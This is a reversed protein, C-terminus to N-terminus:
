SMSVYKEITKIFKDIEIILLQECKEVYEQIQNKAYKMMQDLLYIVREGSLFSISGKFYHAKHNIKDYDVEKIAEYIQHLDNQYTELFRKIIMKIDKDDYGFREEFSDVNFTMLENPCAIYTKQPLYRKITEILHDVKFPKFIVDNIGSDFVKDRDVFINATVAIIPILKDIFRIKRTAEYGDMNPMQLDMLVMNFTEKKIYDIAKGGSNAKQCDFGFKELIAALAKQNIENDDVILIQGEYQQEILEENHPKISSTLGSLQTLREYTNKLYSKCIFIEDILLHENVDISTSIIKVNPNGYNKKIYILEDFSKIRRNILIFDLKKHLDLKKVEKLGLINLQQVFCFHDCNTEHYSYFTKNKLLPYSLKQGKRYPIQIIFVTGQDIESQVEITGNILGVLQYVISLGLGSGQHKRSEITNVQYFMEYLHEIQNQAIGIGTDSIKFEIMNEDIKKVALSVQGENTYKIANNILNLLVQRLKQHDTIIQHKIQYDFNFVLDLNKEKAFYDQMQIMKYLSEELDFEDDFVDMKGAEIKSLDLVENVTNSLTYISSKLVNIYQKQEKTHKTTELLYIANYLGSLPTRIDHSMNALFHTKATSAEIAQERMLILEIQNRQKVIANTIMEALMKLLQFESINWKRKQRNDDFGVFGLCEDGNKLPLTVISLIGQPALTQYIIDDKSLKEVDSIIVPNGSLHLNIWDDYYFELPINKLNDIEQSIGENCWEYTNNLLQNKFDYEFVYVRDVDLFKGVLEFSDILIKDFEETKVNILETAVKLVIDQFSLKKAIHKSM